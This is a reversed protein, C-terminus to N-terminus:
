VLCTDYFKLRTRNLQCRQIGHQTPLHLIDTSGLEIYENDYPSPSSLVSINLRKLILIFAVSDCHVNIVLCRVRYGMYYAVASICFEVRYM